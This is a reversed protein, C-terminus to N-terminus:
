TVDDQEYEPDKGNDADTYGRGYAARIIHPAAADIASRLDDVMIRLSADDDDLSGDPAAERLRVRGAAEYAAPPVTYSGQTTENM